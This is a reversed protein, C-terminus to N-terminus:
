FLSCKFFYSIEMEMEMERDLDGERKEIYEELFVLFVWLNEHLFVYVCSFWIGVLLFFRLQKNIAIFHM